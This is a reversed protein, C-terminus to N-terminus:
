VGGFLRKLAAWLGGPKTPPVPEVDPPPPISAGSGMRFMLAEEQRRRTLGALIRGGARNWKLFESAAGVKDGRNLKKLLTSKGLNAEGLNFSFSVLADFEGQTLPVTVLREVADEFRAVDKRLIEVAKAETIRMGSGVPTGDVSGTHGYGITWIGVPDKYAHLILGEHRRIFALGKPSLKM